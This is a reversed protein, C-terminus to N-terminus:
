PLFAYMTGYPYVVRATRFPNFFLTNLATSFSEFTQVVYTHTFPAMCKVNETLAAIFFPLPNSRPTSVCIKNLRSM